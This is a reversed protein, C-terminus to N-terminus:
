ITPALTRQLGNAISVKSLHVNQTLMFVAKVEQLNLRRPRTSWTILDLRIKDLFGGVDIDSFILDV